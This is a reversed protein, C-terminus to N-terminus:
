TYEQLSIYDINEAIMQNYFLELFPNNYWRKIKRLSANFNAVESYVNETIGVNMDTDEVRELSMILAERRDQMNQYDIEENIQISLIPGAIVIGIILPVVILAGTLVEFWDPAWTSSFEDILKCTVLCGLGVVLVGILIWILLM